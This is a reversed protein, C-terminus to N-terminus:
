NLHVIYIVVITAIIDTIHAITLLMPEHLIDFSTKFFLPGGKPRLRLERTKAVHLMKLRCIDTDFIALM